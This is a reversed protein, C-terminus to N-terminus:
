SGAPPSDSEGALHPSEGHQSAVSVSTHGVSRAADPLHDGAPPVYNAAYSHFENLYSSIATGRGAQHAYPYFSYVLSLTIILLMCIFSLATAHKGTMSRFRQEITIHKATERAETTATACRNISDAWGLAANNLETPHIGVPLM